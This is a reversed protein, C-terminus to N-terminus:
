SGPLQGHSIGSLFPCGICTIFIFANDFSMLLSFVQKIGGEMLKWVGDKDGERM